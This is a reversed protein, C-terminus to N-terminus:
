AISDVCNQLAIKASSGAFDGNEQTPFEIIRGCTTGLGAEGLWGSRARKPIQATELFCANWTKLQVLKQNAASDHITKTCDVGKKGEDQGRQRRIAL